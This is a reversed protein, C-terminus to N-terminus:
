RGCSSTQSALDASAVDALHTGDAGTGIADIFVLGANAGRLKFGTAARPIRITASINGRADATASGM